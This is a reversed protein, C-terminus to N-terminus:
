SGERELIRYAVRLAEARSCGTQRQIQNALEAEAQLRAFARNALMRDRATGLKGM